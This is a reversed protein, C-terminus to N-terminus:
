AGNRHRTANSCFRDEKCKSDDKSQGAAVPAEHVPHISHCQTHPSPEILLLDHKTLLTRCSQSYRPMASRGNAWSYSWTGIVFCRCLCVGSMAAHNRRARRHVLNRCSGDHFCASPQLPLIIEAVTRLGPILIQASPTTVVTLPCFIMVSCQFAYSTSPDSWHYDLPSTM